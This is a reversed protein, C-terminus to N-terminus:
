DTGVAARVDKMTAQAAERARRAGEEEKGRLYTEETRLRAFEARFTRLGESLVDALEEKLQAIGSPSAFRKAIQNVPEGSYGEHIQLLTAVGPRSDPDWTVGAISDTVASKIKSRIESPSDTLFIKSAPHPASKSMKALPNRLSQIRPHTAPLTRKKTETLTRCRSFVRLHVSPSFAVSCSTRYGSSARERARAERNKALIHGISCRHWTEAYSWINHSTMVSRSTPLETMDSKPFDAGFLASVRDAAVLQINCWSSM